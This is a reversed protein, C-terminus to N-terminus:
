TNVEYIQARFASVLVTNVIAQVQVQDNLIFGPPPTNSDVWGDEIKKQHVALRQKCSFQKRNEYPYLISKPTFYSYIM